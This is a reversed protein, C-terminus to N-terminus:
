VPKPVLPVASIDESESEVRMITVRLVAQFIAQKQQLQIIAETMDAYAIDYLQSQMGLLKKEPRGALPRQRCWRDTV